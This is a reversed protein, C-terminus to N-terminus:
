VRNINLYSLVERQKQEMVEADEETMHDYGILHFMSHAVLFAYERLRSHGYEEAQAIVHDVSIVIDGLLLEGSDPEFSDDIEELFDFDGPIEFQTMPFSLVDTSQDLDRQELNIRRIQEDDTLTVDVSAEYPCGESDLVAEMVKMAIERPDFDFRYGYEDSLNLTM